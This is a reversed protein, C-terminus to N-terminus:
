EKKILIYTYNMAKKTLQCIIAKCHQTLKQQLLYLSDAIHICIYGGSSGGEWKEGDWGEPDDCLM